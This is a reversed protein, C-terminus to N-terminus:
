LIRLLCWSCYSMLTTVNLTWIQLFTWHKYKYAEITINNQNNAKTPLKQLYIYHIVCYLLNTDFSHTFHAWFCPIFWTLFLKLVGFLTPLWVVCIQWGLPFGDWKGTIKMCELGYLDPLISPLDVKTDQM